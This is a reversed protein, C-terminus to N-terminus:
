ISRKSGARACIEIQSSSEAAISEAKSRSSATVVAGSATTSAHARSSLALPRKSFDASISCARTNAVSAFVDVGLDGEGIREDGGVAELGRM